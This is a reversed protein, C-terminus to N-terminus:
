ILFLNDYNRPQEAPVAKLTFATPFAHPNRNGRDRRGARDASFTQWRCVAGWLSLPEARSGNQLRLNKPSRTTKKFNNM